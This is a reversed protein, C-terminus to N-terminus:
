SSNTTFPHHFSLRKALNVIEDPYFYNDTINYHKYKDDIFTLHLDTQYLGHVYTNAVKSKKGYMEYLVM